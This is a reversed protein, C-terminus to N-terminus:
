NNMAGATIWRQIAELKQCCLLMGGNTQPM